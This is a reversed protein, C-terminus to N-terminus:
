FKDFKRLFRTEAMWESIKSLVYKTCDFLTTCNQMPLNYINCLTIKFNHETVKKSVIIAQLAVLDAEYVTILVDNLCVYRTKSNCFRSILNAAFLRCPNTFGRGNQIFTKLLVDLLTYSSRLTSQHIGLRNLRNLKSHVVFKEDYKKFHWSKSRSWCMHSPLWTVVPIGRRICPDWAGASRLAANQYVAFLHRVQWGKSVLFFICKLVHV